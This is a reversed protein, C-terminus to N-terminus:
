IEKVIFLPLAAPRAKIGATCTEWKWLEEKDTVLLWIHVKDPLDQPDTWFKAKESVKADEEQEVTPRWRELHGTRQM